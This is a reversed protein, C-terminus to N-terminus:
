VDGVRHKDAEEHHTPDVTRNRIADAPWSVLPIYVPVTTQTTYFNCEAATYLLRIFLQTSDGARAVGPGM